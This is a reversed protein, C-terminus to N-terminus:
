PAHREPHLPGRRLRLHGGTRGSRVAMLEAVVAVAIQEPGEAGVDLGVPAYLREPWVGPAVVGEAALEDLLRRTRDWPGLLGVYALPRSLLVRLLQRDHLYHHTMVVAFADPPLPVREAVEEPHAPILAHAEPFRERTLYADRPDVVTVHFGALRAVRVLPVADHGAGFVFLRPPPALVEVFVKVVDEGAALLARRDHVTEVEGDATLRYGLTRSTGRALLSRADTAVAADLAPHGLTGEVGEDNVLLRGDPVGVGAPAQLVRALAARGGSAQVRALRELDDWRVRFGRRAGPASPEDELPEVLVEVVGNCGLGLGWVVEDEATLDFRVLEPRGSALVRLAVERVAGELCGGSIAGYVRGDEDVAMRAGEGRYASGVVHVVTALAVRRGEARLRRLAAILVEDM